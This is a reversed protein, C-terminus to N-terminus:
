KEFISKQFAVQYSQIPCSKKFCIKLHFITQLFPDTIKISPPSLIKILNSRITSQCLKFKSLWHNAARRSFYKLSKLAHSINKKSLLNLLFIWLEQTKLSHHKIVNGWLFCFTSGCGEKNYRNSCFCRHGKDKYPGYLVLTGIIDCHPCSFLKIKNKYQVFEAQDKLYYKVRM